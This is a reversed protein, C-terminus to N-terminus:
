RSWNVSRLAYYKFKFSLRGARTAMDKKVTKMLSDPRSRVKKQKILVECSDSINSKLQHPM